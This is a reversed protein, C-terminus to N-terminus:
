KRCAIYANSNNSITPTDFGTILPQHDKFCSAIFATGANVTGQLHSDQGSSIETLARDYTYGSPSWDHSVGRCQYDYDGIAATCWSVLISVNCTNTVITAGTSASRSLRICQKAIQTNDILSGSTAGSPSSAAAPASAGSPSSSTAPLASNSGPAGTPNDAGGGGCASLAMLLTGASLRRCTQARM